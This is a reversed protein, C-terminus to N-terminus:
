KNEESWDTLIAQLDEPTDVGRTEVPSRAMQILHGNELARLQELQELRELRGQPYRTFQQLFGQRYAYFGLHRLFAIPGGANDRCYPIPSRSFYLARWTNDVVVKVVHPNHFAAASHSVCALSAMSCTPSHELAAILLDVMAPELLPEDGQINVILDDEECQLLRCAEALRDAGSLHDTSTFVVEGGFARVAEGIRADDTAVLLRQLGAAGSAREYVRQIMSKGAIDVLPKGPFRTSQYRAPIIGVINM